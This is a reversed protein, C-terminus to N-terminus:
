DNTAEKAHLRPIILDLLTKADDHAKQNEELSSMNEHVARLALYTGEKFPEEMGLQEGLDTENLLLRCGEVFPCDPYLGSLDTFMEDPTLYTEAESDTIVLMSICSQFQMLIQTNYSAAYTSGSEMTAKSVPIYLSEVLQRGDGNLDPCVEGFLTNLQESRIYLQPQETLLLVHVDSDVRTVYDYILFGGVLVVFIAMWLWWKSHYFWNGIKEWVTYKKQEEEPFHMDEETIVGQKLRILDLKEEALEKAYEERAQYAAEDARRQRDREAQEARQRAAADIERASRFASVQGTIEHPDGSPQPVNGQKPEQQESM